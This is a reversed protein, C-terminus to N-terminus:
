IHDSVIVGLRRSSIYFAPLSIILFLFVGNLFPIESIMSGPLEFLLNRHIEIVVYVPNLSFFWLTKKSAMYIIPTFWFLLQFLLRMLPTIDKLLVSIRALIFAWGSLAFITCLGVIIAFPFYVSLTGRVLGIVCVPLILISYHIMGQFIPIWIFRNAGLDTRRILARNDTLIGCSHLLMDSVPLWLSMGGLLFSLYDTEGSPMLGGGRVPGALIVGFILFFIAIQFIYQIILWSLGLATGAFQIAYDRRVLSYTM